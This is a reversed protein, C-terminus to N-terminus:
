CYVCMCVCVNIKYFPSILYNFLVCFYSTTRLCLCSCIKHYLYSQSVRSSFPLPGLRWSVPWMALPWKCLDLPYCLPVISTSRSCIAWFQGLNGSWHVLCSHGNAIYLWSWKCLSRSCPYRLSHVGLPLHLPQPVKYGQGLNILLHNM